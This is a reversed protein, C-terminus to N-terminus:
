TCSLNILYLTCDDHWSRIRYFDKLFLLKYIIRLHQENCSAIIAKQTLANQVILSPLGTSRPRGHTHLPPTKRRFLQRVVHCFEGQGNVHVGDTATCNPEAGTMLGLLEIPYLM